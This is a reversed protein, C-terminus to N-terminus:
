SHDTIDNLKMNDSLVGTDMANSLHKKNAM